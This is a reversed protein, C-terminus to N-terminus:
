NGQSFSGPSLLGTLVPEDAALNARSRFAELESALEAFLSASELMEEPTQESASVARAVRGAIRELREVDSVGL